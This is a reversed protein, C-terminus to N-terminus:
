LIEQKDDSSYFRSSYLYIFYVGFLLASSYVFEFGHHLNVIMFWLYCRYDRREVDLRQSLPLSHYRWCLQTPYWLKDCVAFHEIVNAEVCWPKSLIAAMKSVVNEDFVNIKKIEISKWLLEEYRSPTISPQTCSQLLQMALASSNSCDRM